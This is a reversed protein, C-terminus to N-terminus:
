EIKRGVLANLGDWNYRMRNPGSKVLLGDRKFGAMVRSISERAVSTLASMDEVSLMEIEISGRKISTEAQAILVRAVRDHVNGSSFDVIVRDAAELQRHWEEMVIQSFHPNKEELKDFVSFPIKCIAGGRLVVASQDYKQTDDLVTEIGVADGSQLLRVIRVSGDNLTEELKVVGNRIVYVHTAPENQVYLISKPPHYYQAIPKLIEAYEIIDLSAFIDNKRISCHECDAHGEWKVNLCKPTSLQENM